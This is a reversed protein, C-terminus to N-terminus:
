ASNNGFQGAEGHGRGAAQLKGGLSGAGDADGDATPSPLGFRGIKSLWGGRDCAPPDGRKGGAGQRDGADATSAPLKLQDSHSSSFAGIKFHFGAIGLTTESKKGAQGVSRRRRASPWDAGDDSVGITM